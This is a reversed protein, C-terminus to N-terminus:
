PTVCVCSTSTTECKGENECFRVGAGTDKWRDIELQRWLAIIREQPMRLVLAIRDKTQDTRQVLGLKFGNRYVVKAWHLVLSELTPHEKLQAPTPSGAPTDWNPTLGFVFAFHWHKYRLSYIVGTETKYQRKLATIEARLERWEDEGLSVHSTKAERMKAGVSRIKRALEEAHPSDEFHVGAVDSGLLATYGAM